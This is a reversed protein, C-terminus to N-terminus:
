QFMNLKRSVLDIIIRYWTGFISSNQLQDSLELLPKFKQVQLNILNMKGSLKEDLQHLDSQLQDISVEESEM